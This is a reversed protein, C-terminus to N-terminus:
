CYKAPGRELSEVRRRLDQLKEETTRANWAASSERAEREACAQCKGNCHQTVQECYRCFEQQIFAM